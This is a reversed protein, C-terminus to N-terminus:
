QQVVDPLRAQEEEVVQDLAGGPHQGLARVTLQVEDVKDELARREPVQVGYQAPPDVVVPCLPIDDPPLQPEDPDRGPGLGARVGPAPLLVGREGRLQRRRRDPM